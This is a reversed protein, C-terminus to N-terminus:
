RLSGLMEDAKEPSNLLSVKKYVAQYFTDRDALMRKMSFSAMLLSLLVLLSTDKVNISALLENCKSFDRNKQFEIFCEYVKRMAKKSGENQQSQEISEVSRQVEVTQKKSIKTSLVTAKTSGVPLYQESGIFACNSTPISRKIMTIDRYEHYSCIPNGKSEWKMSPMAHRVVEEIDTQYRTSDIDIRIFM